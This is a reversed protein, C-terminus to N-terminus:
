HRTRLRIQGGALDMVDRFAELLRAQTLPGADLLEFGLEAILSAVTRKVEADDGCYFMAVPGESFQPDAIINYGVTNFKKVVKAGPVWQAVQEADSTTTGVALGTFGPLLPNTAITM